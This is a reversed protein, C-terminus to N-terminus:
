VKSQPRPKIKFLQSIWALTISFPNLITIILYSLFNSNKKFYLRMGYNFRKQKTLSMVQAFSKGEHHYVFVDPTYINKFGAKRSDICIQVDEWWLPYEADWNFKNLVERRCMLFAGMLQEVFQEKSYDFDKALYLKLSKTKIFHHLKLLILIQDCLKPDRKVTQQLTGDPYRLQPAILGISPNVQLKSILVEFINSTVTMDPNMFAVYEGSSHKYGELMGKAYGFNETQPYIKVNPYRSQVHEVIGDGSNNEVIILEYDFGSLYSQISQIYADILEKSRWTVTIISLKKM